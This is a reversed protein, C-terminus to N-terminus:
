REFSARLIGPPLLSLPDLPIGDRHIEFHLHSGRANGTRGVAAISDGQGVADGEKVFLESAHAYFSVYGDRHDLLVLNGYTGVAGARVVIGPGAARIVTGTEAAIDIGEHRGSEGRRGFRSTLRGLLPWAFLPEGPMRVPLIREAGPVLIPTGAPISTPKGIGNVEMLTAVPVGYTRYLSFLTQGPQLPHRIGAGSSDPM